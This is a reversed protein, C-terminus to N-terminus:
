VRLVGMIYTQYQRLVQLTKSDNNNEIARHLKDLLAAADNVSPRLIERIAFQYLEPMKYAGTCTNYSFWGRTDCLLDHLLEKDYPFLTEIHQLPIYTCPLLAFCCLMQKQAFDMRTLDEEFISWIHKYPTKEEDTLHCYGRPSVPTSFYSDSLFDVGKIRAIIDKLNKLEDKIDVKAVLEILLTHNGLKELMEYVLHRNKTWCASAQEKESLPVHTDNYISRLLKFAYATDLAELEIDAKGTYGHTTFIVRWRPLSLRILDITNDIETAPANDFVILNEGPIAALESLLLGLQQTLHNTDFKAPLTFNIHPCASLTELLSRKLCGSVSIWIMNSIHKMAGTEALVRQVLATKGIGRMGNVIIFPSPSKLKHTLTKIDDARGIFTKKDYWRYVMNIDHPAEVATIGPQATEEPERCALLTESLHTGTRSQLQSTNKIEKDFLDKYEIYLKALGIINSDQKKTAYALTDFYDPKELYRNVHLAVSRFFDATKMMKFLDTDPIYVLAKVKEQAEADDKSMRHICLKNLYERLPQGETESHFFYKFVDFVDKHTIKEKESKM